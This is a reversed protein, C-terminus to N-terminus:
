CIVVVLRCIHGVTAQLAEVTLLALQGPRRQHEGQAVQRTHHTGVEGHDGHGHVRGAVPGARTQNALPGGHQRTYPTTDTQQHVNQPVFLKPGHQGSQNTAVISYCRNSFAMEMRCTM